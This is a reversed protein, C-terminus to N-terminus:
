DETQCELRLRQLLISSYRHMVMLQEALLLRKRGDIESFVGDDDYMFQELKEIKKDLEASEQVLQEIYAKM